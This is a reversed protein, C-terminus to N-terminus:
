RNKGARSDLAILLRHQLTKGGGAREIREVAIARANMLRRRRPKPPPAAGGHSASIPLVVHEAAARRALSQRQL